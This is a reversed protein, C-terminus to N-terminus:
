SILMLNDILRVGGIEAAICMATNERDTVQELPTFDITNIVEFYELALRESANFLEQIRMRVTKVEDSQLLMEKAEDLAKFLLSAESRDEPSLRLNRSSMALGSAERVTPVMTLEVPFNLQDRLAKIIFFQQLDKQGFFARHPEIINFLKSVVLGVGNFHGPRFKGELQSSLVGFDLNVNTQGPYIERATPTFVASCKANELKKLDEELTAPYKELDEKNNFQAPNVFISAITVDCFDNCTSVLQLHGEHLAGMTPVLGITKKESKYKNVLTRIESISKFVEM